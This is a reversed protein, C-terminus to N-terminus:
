RVRMALGEELITRYTSRCEEHLLMVLKLRARSMAVYLLAEAREGRLERLDTIVVAASDLGKFTQITGWRVCTGDDGARRLSLLGLDPHTAEVRSACSHRDDLNSLIVIESPEFSALLRWVEQALVVVQEDQTSYFRVTIADPSDANLLRSYGPELHCALEIGAGGAPM